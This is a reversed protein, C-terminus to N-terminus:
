PSSKVFTNVENIRAEEPVFKKYPAVFQESPKKDRAIRAETDAIQKNLSHLQVEQYGLYLGLALVVFIAPGNIFFATRVVKIDPLKERSRFDPHWFPQVPPPADSKKLLSLM